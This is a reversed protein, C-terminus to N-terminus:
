REGESGSYIRARFAEDGRVDVDCPVLEEALSKRAIVYMGSLAGTRGLVSKADVRRVSTRSSPCSRNLEAFSTFM